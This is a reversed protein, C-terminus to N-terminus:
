ISSLNLKQKVEPKEKKRTNIREIHKELTSESWCSFFPKGDEKLEHVEEIREVLLTGLTEPLALTLVGAILSCLGLVFMAWEKTLSLSVQIFFPVNFTLSGM